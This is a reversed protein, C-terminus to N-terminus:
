HTINYTRDGSGYVDMRNYGTFPSDFNPTPEWGGEAVHRDALYMKTNYLPSAGPSSQPIIFEELIDCIWVQIEVLASMSPDTIQAQDVSKPADHCSKEVVLKTTVYSLM